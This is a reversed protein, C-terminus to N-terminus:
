HTLSIPQSSEVVPVVIGEDEAGVEEETVREEEEGAATQVLSAQNYALEDQTLQFGALVKYKSGISKDPLPIIQSLAESKLGSLEGSKFQVTSKFIEKALIDGNPATVAVFFPAEISQGTQASGKFAEINLTLNVSVSGSQHKCESALKSMRARYVLYDEAITGSSGFDNKVSLSPVVEVSPCDDALLEEESAQTSFPEALDFSKIDEIIGETTECAGLLFLTGCMLTLFRFTM